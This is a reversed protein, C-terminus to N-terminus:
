AAPSSGGKSTGATMENPRIDAAIGQFVWVLFQVPLKSVKEWSLPYMSGDSEELDWSVVLNLVVRALSAAPQKEAELLLAEMEPTYANTYYTVSLPQGDIDVTLEKTKKALEALKM